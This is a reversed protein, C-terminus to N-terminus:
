SRRALGPSSPLNVLRRALNEAVDLKMRPCNRYMPLLHMLTWAPRTMIGADNTVQLVEDRSAGSDDDLLICNLWYNSRCEPPEQFFRVGPVDAFATRYTEALSRKEVLYQPLRELQACGLAANLNPLRFNFGIEDHVFNWRDSLRATTTLHKVTDALRVDDTVIAGGGGTTIVKNGNFSLASARGFRGTHKGKYYSGLSEAADEVIELCFARAVENLADMQVPHGFTHMPVVAKIRAGTSRNRAVGDRVEAIENLYARLRLPDIGLTAECSDVFHPVAGCHSVANATAVFTLTPVLVEDGPVVDVVKLCVQLAATGNVVAVARAAGTSAALDSEFRDVFKGVSSVWGTDLCEKVYRWDNGQFEPEHLGINSAHAPLAQRIASLIRSAESKQHTRAAFQPTLAM